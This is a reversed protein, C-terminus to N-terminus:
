YLLSSDSMSFYYQKQSTPLKNSDDHVQIKGESVALQEAKSKLEAELFKLQTEKQREQSTREDLVQQLNVKSQELSALQTQLQSLQSQAEALMQQYESLQMSIIYIHM